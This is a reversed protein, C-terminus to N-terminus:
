SKSYIYVACLVHPQPAKVDGRSTTAMFCGSTTALHLLSSSAPRERLRKMVMKRRKNGLKPLFFHAWRFSLLVCVCLKTYGGFFIYQFGKKNKNEELSQSYYCFPRRWLRREFNLLSSSALFVVFFLLAWGASSSHLFAFRASRIFHTAPNRIMMYHTEEAASVELVCCYCLVVWFTERARVHLPSIFYCFFSTSHRYRKVGVRWRRQAM